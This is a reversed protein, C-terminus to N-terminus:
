WDKAPYNILTRPPWDFGTQEFMRKFNPTVDIDWPAGCACGQILVLLKSPGGPEADARAALANAGERDGLVARFGIRQTSLPLAEALRHAEDLNGAAAEVRAPMDSYFEADPPILAAQERAEDIRGLMLLAQARAAGLWITFGIREIAKDATALATEPEGAWLQSVILGGSLSYDLPDCEVARRYVDSSQHFGLARASELWIPRACGPAELAREIRNGLQRWDDSFVARDVDIFARRQPDLTNEYADDLVARYRELAEAKEEPSIDWDLVIHAYYDSSTFYAQGFDPALRVAESFYEDARKLTPLLDEEHGELVLEYGKQFAVFADVNRVGVARMQDRKKEDLVVNMARAVNESIDDQVAFIDELTRDYTESWLHFGDEARVLQATVRVRDDQRRVSGELINDVGLSDGIERLDRNEGKFAFSSTRGAVLLEPLQALRNLLEESLGDAFYENEKDGSMNVFPLVAVSVPGDAPAAAEPAPGADTVAVQPPKAIFFRDAAFMGMALVLLVIVVADLKKATTATQEALESERKIGEPTIEFVWSLILAIPFGIALFVLILKMGWDPVGMTDLLIDAIQLLLWSAVAYFVAVRIVNRRKLETFLNSM